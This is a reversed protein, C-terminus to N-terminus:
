YQKMFFRQKELQEIIGNNGVLHSANIVIMYRKKTELLKEILKVWGNNRQEIIHSRLEPFEKFSKNLYDEYAKLDGNRWSNVIIEKTAPLKNLDQITWQILQEGFKESIYNQEKLQAELSSFPKIPKKIQLAKTYFYLPLNNKHQFGHKQLAFSRLAMSTMWPKYQKLYMKPLSYSYAMEKLDMYTNFTLTDKLVSDKAMRGQKMITEKGTVTVSRAIDTELILVQSDAFANITHHPMPYDVSKLLDISGQIYVTGTRSTIEWLFSKASVHISLFLTTIFIAIVSTRM